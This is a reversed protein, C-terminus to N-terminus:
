KFPSPHPTHVEINALRAQLQYCAGLNSAWVNITGPPYVRIARAVDPNLRPYQATVDVLYKGSGGSNMDRILEDPTHAPAAGPWGSIAYLQEISMCNNNVMYWSAQPAAAPVTVTAVPGPQSGGNIAPFTENPTQTSRAVLRLVHRENNLTWESFRSLFTQGLLLEGAVSGVSAGVNRLIHNGVKLERILFRPDDQTSGDALVYKRKGILDTPIIRNGRLLTSFVDM